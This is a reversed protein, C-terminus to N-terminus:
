NASRHVPSTHSLDNVKAEFQIVNGFIIADVGVVKGADALTDVSRRLSQREIELHALQSEDIFSYEFDRAKIKQRLAETLAASDEPMWQIGSFIGQTDSKVHDAKFDLLALSEPVDHACLARISLITLVLVPIYKKLM